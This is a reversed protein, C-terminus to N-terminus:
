PTLIVKNSPQNGSSPIAQGSPGTRLIKMWVKWMMVIVKMLIKPCVRWSRRLLKRQIRKQWLSMFGAIFPDVVKKEEYLKKEETIKEETMKKEKSM